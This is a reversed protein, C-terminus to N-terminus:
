GFLFLQGVLNCTCLRHIRVSNLLGIQDDCYMYSSDLVYILSLSDLFYYNLAETSGM